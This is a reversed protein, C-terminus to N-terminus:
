CYGMLGRVSVDGCLVRCVSGTEDKVLLAGTEDISQAQGVFDAEAGVVRVTQGLTVSFRLYADQIGAFGHRELAEVTNEMHQLYACLLTRRCLPSANPEQRRLELLLSTAKDALEGPFGTQNVNLGVGSVMYTIGDMDASLECLIGVCKRKGIVVDNPWKIGPELSPCVEQIAQAIAVATALTCLSAQEVPLSPRLVLSQTLALGSPTEWARQLRGRGATQSECIALSGHPAGDRAMDKACTNTSSMERAYRIEGRGAWRTGAELAIYGPLLSDPVPDLRYGLKGCATIQYGEQRLKEMRKWIAGRTMGLQECLKEGSIPQSASLMTLLEDM